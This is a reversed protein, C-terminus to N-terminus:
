SNQEYGRRKQKGGYKGGGSFIKVRIRKEEFFAKRADKQISEAPRRLSFFIVADPTPKGQLILVAFKNEDM